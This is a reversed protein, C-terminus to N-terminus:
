QVTENFSTSVSGVAATIKVTNPTPPTTYSSSARGTTDTAVPSASFSGGAGGDSFTVSAGSVPNGYQDRVQVTLAQPLVTARAGTQNNGAIPTLNAASGATVTESIKLPSLAAPTATITIASAVTSATYSTGAKGSSDTTASKPSFNGAGSGDSFVIGIGSVGNGYQDCVKVIIPAPFSTAVQTSQKGGSVLVVWKAPGPTSTETFTGSKVGPNSATITVVRAGKGFTYTTSATGNSDTVPNANGFTGGKAGDTFSVTVGPVKQSTYPDVVQVTLPVPLTTAVNGTQNNGAAATISPLLGYVMLNTQTGVYVKGNAVIQTSYHPQPPLLDRTGALGSNYLQKLSVADFAFLSQGGIVWLLGNANGNASIIPAHAGAMTISQAAPPTQLIGNNLTYASIPHADGSFYVTNNWYVPSSFMAGVTSPFEQLTQLDSVANYHGMNDRNLLYVTGQKGSAVLVHSSASPQDPLVLLGSASLDLDNASIMVQDHPTFYDTLTLTGSAQTLKLISSGFNQGGLNADFAAEGTSVYVNGDADAAPGSSQWISALGKLPSTNYIGVPLVSTADYALVWGHASDNCGNSGFAIYVIGHNLLLAPRNMAHLSNFPVSTGGTAIFSGGIAVPATFKEAGSAVDLAHLRHYVTGNENTKAVVYMTGTAPDIVPASVIGSQTYATVGQCPLFAGSATTIGGAPNTFNVQWLPTANPGLNSDADFAYVSDNLTAVYVVNHTGQNPVVVNTLYLPQGVIYGDVPQSFRYGFSAKRVNAPTLLTENVNQGTRANDYHQTVVNVQAVSSTLLSATPLLLTTVLLIKRIWVSPPSFRFQNPLM